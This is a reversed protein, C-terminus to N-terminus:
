YHLGIGISLEYKSISQDRWSMNLKNKLLLRGVDCGLSARVIMGKWKQPFVLVEAGAGYFGDKIHFSNDNAKNHFIGIDVFPSLQMEFNFYRLFSVKNFLSLTTWDIAFLKIPLDFNFVLAAPTECAYFYSYGSERSFYQDDRIGRLSGGIKNTGNLYAFAQIKSNIGLYKLSKFIQLEGNIGPIFDNKYFNYEFTQSLSISLGNRFNGDWDIRSTSINQGFSLLPSHLDTNDPHIGNLDWNYTINVYPKYYVKGWNEIEQLVFPISLQVYEVFYTGDGYHVTKDNIKKDEYDFNRIFSQYFDLNISVKKLPLRFNLGSKLNWEPSNKGITYSFDYNNDWVVDFPKIKFPTQFDINFGVKYEAQKEEETEIAFNLDSSMTEMSGLFNTDKAKLKFKFGTNSNFSPYPVVLFHLSDKTKVTICVKYINNEDLESTKHEFEVSEFIRTNSVQKKYDEIYNILEEESEFLRDKDIKIKTELVYKRTIGDTIYEVNEIKYQQAFTNFGLALILLSFLKKKM